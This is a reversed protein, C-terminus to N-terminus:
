DEGKEKKIKLLQNELKEKSIKLKILITEQETLDKKIRSILSRINLLENDLFSIQDIIHEEKKSM